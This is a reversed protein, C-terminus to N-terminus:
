NEYNAVGKKLIEIISNRLTLPKLVEVDSGFQLIAAVLENNVIIKLTYKVKGSKLVKTNTIEGFPKTLFYKARKASFVLELEEPLPNKPITVGILYKNGSSNSSTKEAFLAFYKRVFGKPSIVFVLTNFLPFTFYVRFIITFLSNTAAISWNPLSTSTSFGNISLFLM